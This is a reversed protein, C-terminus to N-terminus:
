PENSFEVTDRIERGASTEVVLEAELTDGPRFSLRSNMLPGTETVGDGPPIRGAQRTTSSGSQGSKRVILHYRGSEGSELRAYAQLMIADGSRSSAIWADRDEDAMVPQGSLCFVILGKYIFSKM